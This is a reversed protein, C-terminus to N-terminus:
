DKIAEIVSTIYTHGRREKGLLKNIIIKRDLINAAIYMHYLAIGVAICNMEQLHKLFISKKNLSYIDIVNKNIFFRWPQNNMASPAMRVSDLIHQWTKTVYGSTFKPIEMRKRPRIFKGELGEEDRPYGFSITIVAEHNKNIAVINGLLQKNISGGIFCTGIGMETLSLVISEAAFGVNELYGEKKISTIVIYHPARVKGYGGFIGGRIGQIKIGDEVVYIDMDIDEYLRKVSKCTEKIEELVGVQLEENLYRRVSRRRYIAEVQGM